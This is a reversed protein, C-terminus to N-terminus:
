SEDQVFKSPTSFVSSAVFTREQFCVTESGVGTFCCARDRDRPLFFFKINIKTGNFRDLNRRVQVIFLEPDALLPIVLVDESSDSAELVM